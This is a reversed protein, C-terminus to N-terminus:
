SSNSEEDVVTESMDPFLNSARGSAEGFIAELREQANPIPASPEFLLGTRERGTAWARAARTLRITDVSARSHDNCIVRLCARDELLLDTYREFAHSTTKYFHYSRGFDHTKIQNENIKKRCFPCEISMEIYADALKRGGEWRLQKSLCEACIRKDNGICTNCLLYVKKNSVCCIACDSMQSSQENVYM